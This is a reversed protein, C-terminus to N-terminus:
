YSHRIEFCIRIDFAQFPIQMNAKRIEINTSRIKLTVM